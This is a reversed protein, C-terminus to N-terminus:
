REGLLMQVLANIDAESLHTYAPMRFRIGGYGPVIYIGPDLISERIYGEPTTASGTYNPDRIRNEATAGIGNHSPGFLGGTNAADLRHCVGCYQQRYVERGSAVLRDLDTSDRSTATSKPEVPNSPVPTATDTPLVRSTPAAVPKSAPSCAATLGLLLLINLSLSPSM